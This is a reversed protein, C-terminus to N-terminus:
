MMAASFATCDCWGSPASAREQAESVGATSCSMSTALAGSVGGVWEVRHVPERYGGILLRRHHDAARGPAAVHHRAVDTAHARRRNIFDIGWSAALEAVSDYYEQAGPKDMDIGYNLVSWRCTDDVNAIDRASHPTGKIPLDLEVAKRPLASLM